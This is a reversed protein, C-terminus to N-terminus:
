NILLILLQSINKLRFKQCNQIRPLIEQDISICVNGPLVANDKQGYVKGCSESFANPNACFSPCVRSFTSLLNFVPSKIKYENIIHINNFIVGLENFYKYVVKEFVKFIKAISHFAIIAM